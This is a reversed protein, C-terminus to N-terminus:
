AAVRQLHVAGAVERTVDYRWADFHKISEQRSAAVAARTADPGVFYTRGGDATDIFPHSRLWRESVVPEADGRLIRGNEIDVLLKPENNTLSTNM